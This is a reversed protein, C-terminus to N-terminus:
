VALYLAVDIYKIAALRVTVTQAREQRAEEADEVGTRHGQETGM